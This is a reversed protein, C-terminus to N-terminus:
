RRQEKKDQISLYIRLFLRIIFLLISVVLVPVFYEVPLIKTVMLALLVIIISIATYTYINFNKRTLIKGSFAM